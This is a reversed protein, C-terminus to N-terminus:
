DRPRGYKATMEAEVACARLHLRTMVHNIIAGLMVVFILGWIAWIATFIWLINVGFMVLCAQKYDPASKPADNDM